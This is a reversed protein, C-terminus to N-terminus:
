KGQYAAELAAIDFKKMGLFAQTVRGAAEADGERMMRDMATPIIQWSVGFQDKLWGCQESEPVASLKEWYQDIEEQTECRVVLSVAENFGFDHPGASDMAVFEQGALTFTGYKVTGEVSPEEGAGYPMIDGVKSDPLVSTYHRIADEAKGAADGTFMLSPVISPKGVALQWSVGFRDQVWGYQESWPYAGLEMLVKGGEALASWLRSVEDAGECGVMFSISPNLTFYPGASISMFEYGMLEFSLIDCDGSPTDKIVKAATIRSNPFLSTYFTTAEKAQTNFWLHPVIKQM